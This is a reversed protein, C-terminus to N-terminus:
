HYDDNLAGNLDYYKATYQIVKSLTYSNTSSVLSNMEQLEDLTAGNRMMCILLIEGYDGDTLCKKIKNRDEITYM